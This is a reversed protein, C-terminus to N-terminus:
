RVIEDNDLRDAIPEFRIGPILKHYEKLDFRSRKHITPYIEFRILLIDVSLARPSTPRGISLYRGGLM